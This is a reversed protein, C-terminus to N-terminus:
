THGDLPFPNLDYCGSNLKRHNMCSVSGGLVDKRMKDSNAHSLLSGLSSTLESFEILCVCVSLYM